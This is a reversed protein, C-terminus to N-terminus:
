PYEIEGTGKKSSNLFLGEDFYKFLLLSSESLTEKIEPCLSSFLGLCSKTEIHRVNKPGVASFISLIIITNVSITNKIPQVDDKAEDKTDTIGSPGKSVQLINVLGLKASLQRYLYMIKIIIKAIIVNTIDKNNWM